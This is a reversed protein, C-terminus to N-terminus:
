TSLCNIKEDLTMLSILNDLREESDLKNNQFRYTQAHLGSHVLGFILLIAFKKM